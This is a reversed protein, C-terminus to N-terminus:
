PSHPGERRRAQYIQPILDTMNVKKKKKEFRVIPMDTGSRHRDEPDVELRTDCRDELFDLRHGLRNHCRHPIRVAMAVLFYLRIRFPPHRRPSITRLHLRSNLLRHSCYFRGRLRADFHLLVVSVCVCELAFVRHWACCQVWVM